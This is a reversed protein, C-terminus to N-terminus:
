IRLYHKLYIQSQPVFHSEYAALYLLRQDVWPHTPHISKSQLNAIRKYILPGSLMFLVVKERKFERSLGVRGRYTLYTYLDAAYESLHRETTSMRGSHINSWAIHGIEHRLMAEVEIDSLDPTFFLRLTALDQPKLQCLTQTLKDPHNPLLDLIYNLHTEKAQFGYNRIKEQSIYIIRTYTNCECINPQHVIM